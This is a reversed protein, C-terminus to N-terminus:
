LIGVLFTTFALLSHLHFLVYHKEETDSHLTHLAEQM